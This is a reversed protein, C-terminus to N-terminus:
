TTFGQLCTWLRPNGPVPRVSLLSQRARRRPFRTHKLCDESADPDRFSVDKFEVSESEESATEAGEQVAIEADIVENIRNASVQARIDFSFDAAIMAAFYGVVVTLLASCLACVLLLCLLALWRDKAKM